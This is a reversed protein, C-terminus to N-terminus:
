FFKKFIYEKTSILVYKRNEIKKIEEQLNFNEDPM